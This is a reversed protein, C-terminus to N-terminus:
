CTANNPIINDELYVLFTFNPEFSVFFIPPEFNADLKHFIFIVHGVTTKDLNLVKYSMNKQIAIIIDIFKQDM